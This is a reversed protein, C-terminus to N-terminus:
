PLKFPFDAAIGKVGFGQLVMLSGHHKSAQDGKEVRSTIFLDSVNKGGFGCSTPRSVPLEIRRLQKGTKSSICVVSGSEGVAVWLNEESDITMGDPVNAHNTPSNYVIRGSGIGTSKVIPVGFEDCDYATITEAASDVFFFNKGNENWCMGNPLGVKDPGFIDRLETSKPDLAYLRGNCGKRWDSHMRGAILAGQPSVKCDNFRWADGTGHSEPVTALVKQVIAKGPSDVNSNGSVSFNPAEIVLIQTRCCALILKPDDTLAVAGVPDELETAIYQKSEPSYAFVLKKNIDVFYVVDIRGDYIPGEGLECHIDVAVQVETKAVM